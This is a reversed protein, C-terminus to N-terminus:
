FRVVETEKSQRRRGSPPGMSPDPWEEFHRRGRPEDGALEFGNRTLAATVHGMWARDTPQLGEVGLHVQTGRLSITMRLGEFEDFSLTISRPPPGAALARTVEVIRDALLSTAPALETLVGTDASTAIPQEPRLAVAPGITDTGNSAPL